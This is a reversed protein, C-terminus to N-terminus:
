GKGNLIGVFHLIKQKKEYNILFGKIFFIHCRDTALFIENCFLKLNLRHKGTNCLKVKDCGHKAQKLRVYYKSNNHKRCHIGVNHSQRLDIQGSSQRVM